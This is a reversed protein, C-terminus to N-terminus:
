PDLRVKAKSKSRVYAFFSKSDYKINQALKREFSMKAKRVEASARRNAEVCAPHKSDKYRAHARRKKRVAEVARRTIWLPKRRATNKAPIYKRELAKLLDRFKVWAEYISGVLLEDWCVARLEERMSEFNARRYDLVVRDGGGHDNGFYVTWSIM